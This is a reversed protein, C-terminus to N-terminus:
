GPGKSFSDEMGRQGARRSDFIKTPRPKLRSLVAAVEDAKAASTCGTYRLRRAEWRSQPKGM